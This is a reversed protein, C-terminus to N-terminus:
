SMPAKADLILSKGGPLHVLMDPRFAKGDREATNVSFHIQEEFDTHELMGAAEVIRRLQVEGWHGRASSSRLSAVLKHTHELMASDTAHATRLQQSLQGYQQGRDRDLQAVQGGLHELQQSLPGLM